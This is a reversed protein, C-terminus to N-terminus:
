GCPDVGPRPNSNIVSSVSDDGVFGGLTIEAKQNDIGEVCFVFGGRIPTGLGSINDFGMAVTSRNVTRGTNLFNGGYLHLRIVEPYPNPATYVENISVIKVVRLRFTHNRTEINPVHTPMGGITTYTNADHLAASQELTPNRGLLLGVQTSSDDPSIIITKGLFVCEGGTGTTSGGAPVGTDIYPNNSVISCPRNEYAQYYGKNVESILNQLTAEYDKVSQAFEVKAQRGSFTIMIASFMATTVALVIMTEVITYGKSSLKGGMAFHSNKLWRKM